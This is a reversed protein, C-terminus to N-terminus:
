ESQFHRRRWALRIAVPRSTNPRSSCVLAPIWVRATSFGSHAASRTDREHRRPFTHACAGDPWRTGDHRVATHHQQSSPLSRHRRARLTRHVVSDAAQRQRVRGQQAGGSARAFRSAPDLACPRAQPCHGRAAGSTWLEGGRWRGLQHRSHRSCGLRRIQHESLGVFHGIPPFIYLAIANFVFVTALSVSMEERTARIAPGIAAIASGGCISTGASILITLNLDVQMWRGLQLGVIIAAVTLLLTYVFGTSGASLLRDLPIGFGLAVIAVKLLGASVSGTLRSRPNGVALSFVIGAALALSPTALPTLSLAAGLCLLAARMIQLSLGLADARATM